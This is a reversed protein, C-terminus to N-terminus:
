ISINRTLQNDISWINRHFFSLYGKWLNNTGEISSTNLKYKGTLRLIPFIIPSRFLDKNSSVFPAKTPSSFVQRYLLIVPSCYRMSIINRSVFILCPALKIRSYTYLFIMKIKKKKSKLLFYTISFM